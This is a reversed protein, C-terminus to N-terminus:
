RRVQEAFLHQWLGTVAAAASAVAAPPTRAFAEGQLRLAHQLRRLQRYADQADTALGAPLLRHQAAIKLLALNGLNATLEAVQHAHALVLYQVAFEVDILGGRDHKLDFEGSTNPHAALLKDRMAIIDHALTARDRPLLLIDRRIQEFRLGVDTDGICARARTLAQHEWVWAHERQYADFNDVTSVLLGKSGDPRLQFDTEYLTGGPTMTTLWATIRQALRVYNEQANPADDDYLFVIDLDSAYGLEKGGLKGYGIIALRPQERHRAKVDRWALRLTERLILEALASLHDSLTELALDGALDQAILRITQQQKFHRLADMQQEVDTDLADLQLRLETGLAPWDPPALMARDALLEDLLIPHRALYDAVWASAGVLRAVVALAAPFETFLALYAERRAITELLRLLRILAADPATQRAAALVAQPVLREFQAQSRAPMTRIRLSTRLRNWEAILAPPDSYGLAALREAAAAAPEIALPLIIDEAGSDATAAFIRAFHSSVVRRQDDFTADFADWDPLGMARAVLARDDSHPLPLRHTQQDDLYQLRHELTRLFVYARDLQAADEADLLGRTALATLSERTSRARLLADRGGRVLQYLQVIFEIERIGGPGLKVDDFLERRTVEDRVQRHLDRLAAIASYDVHRRFVFPRVIAELAAAEDGCVCRAKLWAFREWERGNTLLYNELADFGIALPGAEGWPRLRNDVRFVFGDATVDALTTTVRQAARGFFEHNSITRAGDTAGDEPYLMVLDIDSSVNLENGGLKGMAVVHLSQPAGAAEGRPQGYLATLERAHWRVAAQLAHDALASMTGVIEDLSSWGALDRAMVRLLVNCRLRRLAAKFAALDAAEAARRAVTGIDEVSVAQLVSEPTLASAEHALARRAYRSLQCARALAAAGDGPPLAAAAVETITNM